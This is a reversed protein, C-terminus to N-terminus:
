NPDIRVVRSAEGGSADVAYLKNDPGFAISRLGNTIGTDLYNVREGNSVRFASIRGTAFDSVYLFGGRLAIGSPTDLEGAAGVVEEVHSDPAEYLPTERIATTVRPMTRDTEVATNLRVVRHNGSDAVYIFNSERDFVMQSPVNEVRSLEGAAFRWTLGDAHDDAGPAHWDHFEYKDISGAQGNFAWFIRPATSAIGMCLPSHHLMDLHSGSPRRAQLQAIDTTHVVPGMFNNPAARGRYDNRSEQCTAVTGDGGFALSTPYVLFHYSLDRITLPAEPMQKMTDAITFSDGSWNTVWLQTPSEPNFALGTPQRLGEVIPTLTVTSASHDGRGIEPALRPPPADVVVGADTGTMGTDGTNSGCGFATAGLMVLSGLKMMSRM